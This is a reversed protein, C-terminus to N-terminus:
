LMFGWKDHKDFGHMGAGAGKRRLHTTGQYRYGKESGVMYVCTFVYLGEIQLCESLAGIKTKIEPTRFQQLLKDM